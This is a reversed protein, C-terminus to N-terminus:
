RLIDEATWPLDSALVSHGHIRVLSPLGHDRAAKIAAQLEKPIEGSGTQTDQDMIRFEIGQEDALRRAVLVQPPLSGESSEHVIVKLESSPVNQSNVFWWLFLIWPLIKFINNKM